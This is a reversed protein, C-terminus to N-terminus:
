QLIAAIQTREWYGVKAQSHNAFKKLSDILDEIEIETAFKNEILLSKIEVIGQWLQQKLEPTDLSAQIQKEQLVKLNNQEFVSRLKKGISFDAKSAEVHVIAAKKFQEFIPDIPDCYLSYISNPEECILISNPHMLKTIKQIVEPVFFLHALVFRCYILDFKTDLTDIEFASIKQFKLNNIKNESAIAQAIDLQAQSIDIGLVRRYPLSRKALEASLIGIGCGLDLISKNKLDINCEVFELTSPNCMDNLLKLRPAGDKGVKLSYKHDKVTQKVKNKEDQMVYNKARIYRYREDLLGDLFPLIIYILYESLM